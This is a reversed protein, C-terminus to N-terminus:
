WVAPFCRSSAAGAVGRTEADRSASTALSSMYDGGSRVLGPATSENVARGGIQCGKASKSTLFAPFGHPQAVSGLSALTADKANEFTALPALTASKSLYLDHCPTVLSFAVLLALVFSHVDRM